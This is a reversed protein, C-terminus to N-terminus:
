AKALIADFARTLEGQPDDTLTKSRWAVFGDPRILAAGSDSLGYAAAFEGGPDRLEGGIRHADLAVGARTAAKRAAGCWADGQPGALLLFLAGTLDITSIPEGNLELWLHPARSGPRGFTQRPDDHVKDEGNE